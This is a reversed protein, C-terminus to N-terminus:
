TSCLSEDYYTQPHLNSFQNVYGSHAAEVNNNHAVGSSHQQPRRQQFNQRSNGSNGDRPPRSNRIIGSAIDYQKNKCQM